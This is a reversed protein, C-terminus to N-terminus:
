TYAVTNYVAKNEEEPSRLSIEYNMQQQKTVLEHGVIKLVGNVSPQCAGSDM